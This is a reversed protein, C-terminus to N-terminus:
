HNFVFEKSNLLAWQLDHFVEDRPGGALAARVASREADTPERSLTSQFLETTIRGDDQENKLLSALRGDGSNIKDRLGDGNQLELLQTITVESSRECPCPTVRLPRGFQTLFYSEVSPDPLEIARVGVPYGPYPEPVGSAQCVADALVEAGLRRALYHSYFRTDAENGEVTASSRQYTRSNLILRMMHKLDFHHEVFERNLAAWLAPDSPPNTSRLDDVPEVLGTGLFHSWLRNVMAGSFLENKPDTIWAALKVRPDEGAAITCQERDFPRPALFQGTRPQTTGLKRGPPVKEMSLTSASKRIETGRDLKVACFFAAFHYYDDQTYRELPHNHCKACGIRTGLFAQSVSAVIQSKDAEREEGVNVLFYGIEPRDAASGSATLLDRVLEDWPRNAKVQERLWEHMARVGKAGRVDHDREKRNQLLDALQLAWYDVFEPRELLRDIRQSRKDPSKDAAFARVEEVTPLTGITDLSARRLFAEDSCLESPPIHLAALKAVVKEDIFNNAAAFRSPDIARHFPVTFISLATQGRFEARVATEGERVARVKGNPSVDMVGADNTAFRTLWTVDRWHGDSYQVRVALQLAQGTHLTTDGPSLEIRQPHPEDALPGPAGARIWNLLLNYEPSAIEILTGGGHPVAGTPKRLLLSNEPLALDIRRGRSERTLRDIDWEPAYGRLSLRFGNRGDAKGHCSGANCGLRTFLPVVDEVFSPPKTSVPSVAETKQSATGSKGGSTPQGAQLASPCVVIALGAAFAFRILPLRMM